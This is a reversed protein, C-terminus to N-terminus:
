VFFIWARVGLCVVAGVGEGCGAMGSAMALFMRALLIDLAGRAPFGKRSFVIHFLMLTGM